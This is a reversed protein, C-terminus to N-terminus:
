SSSTTDLLGQLALLSFTTLPLPTTVAYVGPNVTELTGRRGSKYKSADNIWTATEKRVVKWRSRLSDPLKVADPARGTMDRADAERAKDM